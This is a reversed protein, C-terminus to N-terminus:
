DLNLYYNLSSDLYHRAAATPQRDVDLLGITSNPAAVAPDLFATPCDVGDGIASDLAHVFHEVITGAINPDDHDPTFQTIILTTDAAAEACERISAHLREGLEDLRGDDASRHALVLGIRDSTDLYGAIAPADSAPLSAVVPASGGGLM